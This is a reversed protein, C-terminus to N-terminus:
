AQIVSEPLAGGFGLELVDVDHGQKTSWEELQTLNSERALDGSPTTNSLVVTSVPLENQSAVFMTSLMDHIVGLRNEAVLVVSFRDLGAALEAHLKRFLDLNLLRESIPSMLGGAGEIVLCDCHGIWRKAGEILLTENVSTGEQRAAQDPALPALFRQPCVWDIDKPHGAAQWLENADTAVRQTQGQADSEMVCGSAVPKYVGVSRGQNRRIAALQAAVYTKGADTGTGTVLIIETTMRIKKTPPTSHHISEIRDM